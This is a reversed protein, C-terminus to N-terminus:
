RRILTNVVTERAHLAHEAVRAHEGCDNPAAPHEGVPLDEHGPAVLWGSVTDRRGARLGLRPRAAQLPERRRRHEPLPMRDGQDRCAAIEDVDIFAAQDSVRGVAEGGGARWAVLAGDLGPGTRPRDGFAPPVWLTPAFQVTKLHDVGVTVGPQEHEFVM